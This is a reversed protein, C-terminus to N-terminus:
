QQHLSLPDDHLDEDEQGSTSGVSSSRSSDTQSDWAILPLLSPAPPCSPLLPPCVQHLNWFYMMIGTQSKPKKRERFINGHMVMGEGTMQELKRAQIMSPDLDYFFAFVLKSYYSGDALEDLTLKNEPEAAEREKRMMQVPQSASLGM